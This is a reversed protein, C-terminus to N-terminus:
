FNEYESISKTILHLIRMWSWGDEKLTFEDSNIGNSVESYVIVDESSTILIGKDHITNSSSRLIIKM